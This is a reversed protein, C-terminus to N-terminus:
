ENSDANVINLEAEKQRIRDERDNLQQEWESYENAVAQKYNLINENKGTFTIVFLLVIVAALVICIINKIKSAEKEAEYKKQSDLLKRDFKEQMKLIQVEYEEVKESADATDNKIENNANEKNRYKTLILPNAEEDLLGKQSLHLQINRLFELGIQTEFVNQDTAKLYLAKLAADNNLDLKEQIAKIRNAEEVAKEAAEMSPFVYGDVYFQQEM